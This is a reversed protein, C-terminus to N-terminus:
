YKEATGSLISQIKHFAIYNRPESIGFTALVERRNYHIVGM